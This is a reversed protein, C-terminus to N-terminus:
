LSKRSIILFKLLPVYIGERAVYPLQVLKQLM